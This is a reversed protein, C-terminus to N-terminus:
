RTGRARAPVLPVTGPCDRSLTGSEVRSLKGPCDGRELPSTGSDRQGAGADTRTCFDDDVSILKKGALDDLARSFAKRKEDATTKRYFYPRLDEKHFTTKGTEEEALAFATLLENGRQSPKVPKGTDLAPGDDEVAVCSTIRDGDEDAGLDLLVLRFPYGKSEVGDKVKVARWERRGGKKEVSIHLDMAPLQVSSGRARGPTNLGEHAIMLVFGKILRALLKMGDVVRGMDKSSNEEVDPASANLTDIIVLAGEPCASALATVDEKDMIRFEEGIVFRFSDPLPKQLNQRRYHQMAKVRVRFGADGELSVYVVPCAAPIRYGFFEPAGDSLAEALSLMLFTKAAMSAGSVQGIGEHPMLGKIKWRMPKDTAAEDPTLLQFKPTQKEEQGALSPVGAAEQLAQFETERAAELERAQELTMPAAERQDADGPRSEAQPQISGGHYEPDKEPFRFLGAENLEARFLRWAKRAWDAKEKNSGDPCKAGNLAAVKAKIDRIAKLERSEKETPKALQTGAKGFVVHCVSREFGGLCQIGTRFIKEENTPLNEAM